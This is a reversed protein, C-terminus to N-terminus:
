GIPEADAGELQEELWEPAAVREPGPQRLALARPGLPARVASLIHRLSRHKMGVALHTQIAGGREGRQMQTAAIWFGLGVPDFSQGTEAADASHKASLLAFEDWPATGYSMNGVHQRYGVVVEPSVSPRSRRALRLWLDWDALAGLREDLPGLESLLERRVLVNSSGAPLVNRRVLAALLGDPDPPPTDRYVHGAADFLLSASYVWAEAGTALQSGAQSAVVPRRRRPARGMRGACSRDRPEQRPPGVLHPGAFSGFGTTAMPPSPTVQGTAPDTTWWSSRM